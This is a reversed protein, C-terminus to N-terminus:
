CVWRTLKNSSNTTRYLVKWHGFIKGSLDEARAGIPIEPFEKKIDEIDM